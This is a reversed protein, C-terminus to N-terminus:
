PRQGTSGARRPRLVLTGATLLLLTTVALGWESVTPVAEGEVAVCASFESTSGAPDTATATIFQGAPLTTEFDVTFVVNGDDLTTELSSGLFLEGEGHGFPDCASNSFFEVAFDTGPTSNLTGTITIGAADSIASILM